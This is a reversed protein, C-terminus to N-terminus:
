RWMEMRLGKSDIGPTDPIRKAQGSAVREATWCVAYADLMDDVGVGPLRVTNDSNMLDAGTLLRHRADKGQPTKKGDQIARGGNLEYFCLEPHVEVVLEQREPTMFKDVERLKPFLGFTQRALQLGHVSSAANIACAEEYDRASLASRVPIPFVSSARPPGLLARAIRDCERGGPMAHDLLGIPCDVGIHEPREPFTLVQGFSQIFRYVTLRSDIERLVCFWGSECGDIGAVWSVSRM